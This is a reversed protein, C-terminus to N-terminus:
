FGYDKKDKNFLAKVEQSTLAREYIRFDDIGATGVGNIYLTEIQYGAPYGPMGDLVGGAGVSKVENGNLYFTRSVPTRTVAIHNIGSALGPSNFYSTSTSSSNNGASVYYYRFSFFGFSSTSPNVRVGSSISPFNGTSNDFLSIDFNINGEVWAAFTRNESTSQLSPNITSQSSSTDGGSHLLASASVGFTGFSFGTTIATFTNFFNGQDVGNGNFPFYSLFDSPPLQTVSDTNYVLTNDSSTVFSVTIRKDAAATLPLTVGDPFVFDAEFDVNHNGTPDQDLFYVVNRGPLREDPFSITVDGTLNQQFQSYGLGYNLRLVM